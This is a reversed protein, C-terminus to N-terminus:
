HTAKVLFWSRIIQHIHSSNTYHFSQSLDFRYPTRTPAAVIFIIKKIFVHFIYMYKWSDEKFCVVLLVPYM